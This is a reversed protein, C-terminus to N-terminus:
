SNFANRLAERALERRERERAGHEEFLQHVRANVRWRTARGAGKFGVPTLWGFADLKECLYRVADATYTQFGGSRQVTRADVEELREALIFAALAQVEEFDDSFGLAGRYFAVASPRIFKDLFAAVKAAVAAPITAPITDDDAHEIVHWLVCLRAFLGDYKGYHTSLKPSVTELAQVAALNKVELAQRIARAGDDFHLVLGEHATLDRILDGYRAVVANTPVDLGNGAPRLVVPIFRQVLGDDGIDKAIKRMPEPQIGGLLCVSCNKIFVSGRSIRDVNYGGGNFSQLWFGRDAQAAKGPSYKDMSGFWGSLEDQVSLLGWPNDKLVEQAAEVTLDQIIRRKRRPREAEQREAQDLADYEALEAAYEAALEAEIRRLPYAAVNIIPTKKRSPVGVLGVWLRASERWSRDHQKVQVVIADTIAASAVALAAMALGAPDVGMVEGHKRAFAEIVPPLLGIPLEPPPYGSWLDAPNPDDEAPEAEHRALPNSWGWNEQAEVFVGRWHAESPEISEWVREADAADFRDSKASWELWLSKGKDDPLTALAHGIRVWLDREDSPIAELASRLHAIKTPTILEGDDDDRAAKPKKRTGLSSRLDTLDTWGRPNAWVNGTITLFRGAGWYEVGDVSYSKTENCAGLIRLGEGSPSVEIYAGAAKAKQVLDFGAHTRILNGRPDLCHDLDFGGIGSGGVMALGLGTYDGVLYADYAGELGVLRAIDAPTDLKGQRRAGDAYRPVKKGAEDRWLLWRTAGLIPDPLNTELSELLTPMRPTPANM